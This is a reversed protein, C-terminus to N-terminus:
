FTIRFIPVPFFGLQYQKTLEGKAPNFGVQFLNQHDTINQLDVAFELTAKKFDKRYGLKLDARFYPDIQESFANAEDYVAKKMLRSEELKLPTIFRGGISTVRINVYFVSGKSDLKFEKGALLNAAYQTNFASNREIGDSGKYKSDFLSGTLLFYYGKNFNRELTLEIGQNTGTGKAVLSSEDSPAFSAGVNVMSFSSPFATVGIQDHYQYYAELKLRLSSTLMNEYGLVWHQSRAFPLNRNTERGLADRSLMNYTPINQHHIGFGINVSSRSNLLYKAGARPELVGRESLDLYQAHTGVNVSLRESVRYKIQVYAQSLALTGARNVRVSDVIGQQFFDSNTYDFRTVDHSFGGVLQLRANIKHTLYGVFSLKSDSFQGASLRYTADSPLLISDTRYENSIHNVAAILKGFTKSGLNQEYSIGSFGSRYRPLTNVGPSGYYNVLTTDVDKGLLDISSFGGFGFIQLKGTKGILFNLKYSLDQYLPVAAGTGTPIGVAQMLGLTSYRYNILFSSRNSSKSFPGEAGFEFGNFGVQGIMELKENNGERMKLDFVAGNSNGYQAPFAGSFFDSKSLVNANLMSVPGGTNFGNGFHNPNYINIGEFQWLMSNPSNGRVVIDNRSDNGAIVGAFNAAMRSPDGLSGAYKLTEDPNFSRASVTAMDNNTAKPDKKRDYVVKAEALKRIGETMQLNLVVEKGTTVMLEPLNLTEYGVYSISLYHRGAPVRNIRFKGEADTTGGLPPQTTKILIVAGILPQRTVEDLIQGRVTQTRDAQAQGIWPTLLLLVLLRFITKMAILYKDPAFIIFM